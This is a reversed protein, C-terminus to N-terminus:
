LSRLIARALGGDGNKLKIPLCILEYEGPKVQSLNLGEIAWIGSGLLAQHVEIVNGQYGGVSLYDVGVTRVKKEALYYAAETSIYVFDEVFDPSNLAYTSNKTKFLIREGAQIDHSEIEAVRIQKPDKIEIVRAKGITADLPMKDVGMGGKIFHNIGDVHTGTHTGITLKSVNCVDGHALCQSPEITVPPNNPWYPMEPHITLSIDIWNAQNM